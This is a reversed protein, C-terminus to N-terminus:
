GVDRLVLAHEGLYALMQAAWYTGTVEVLRARAQPAPVAVGEVNGSLAVDMETGPPCGRSRIRGVHDLCARLQQGGPVEGRQDVRQGGRGGLSNEPAWRRRAQNDIDPRTGAM